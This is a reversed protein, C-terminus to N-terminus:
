AVLLPFVARAKRLRSMVDAVFADHLIPEKSWYDRYEPLDKVGMAINIRVFAKMEDATTPHWHPDSTANTNDATPQAPPHKYVANANTATALSAFYEAGVMQLLFDIAPADHPLPDMAGTVEIFPEIVPPELDAM